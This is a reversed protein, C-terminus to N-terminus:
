KLLAGVFLKLLHEEYDKRDARGYEGHKAGKAVWLEKPECAALYLRWAQDAPVITDLEGAILLVPRPAINCITAIPRVGNVDVGASELAWLAPYQSLPGWKRLEFSLEEDISSYGGLCAVAKVRQDKAAVELATTGGLSFGLVGIRDRDVDSRAQVYDLASLLAGQELDGWTVLTGDSEGHAPFDFALVGFGRAALLELEARLQARNAYHGHCLVVAARNRSPVYWGRLTLAGSTFAVSELGQVKPPADLAERPPHLTSRAYRFSKVAIAACFVVAAVVLGLVARKVVGSRSLVM